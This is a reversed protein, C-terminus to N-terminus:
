RILSVPRLDCCTNTHTDTGMDKHTQMDSHSVNNHLMVDVSSKQFGAHTHTHRNAQSLTGDSNRHKRNSVTQSHVAVRERM